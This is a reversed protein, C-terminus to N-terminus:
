PLKSGHTRLPQHSHSNIGRIDPGVSTPLRSLAGVAPAGFAETVLAVTFKRARKLPQDLDGFTWYGSPKCRTEGVFHHDGDKTTAWAAIRLPRKSDGPQFDAWTARGVGLVAGTLHDDPASGIHVGGRRHTFEPLGAGIRPLTGPQHSILELTTRHAPAQFYGDEVVLVAYQVGPRVDTVMWEGNKDLGYHDHKSARRWGHAERGGHVPAFRWVFPMVVLDALRYGAHSTVKGQLTVFGRSPAFHEISSQPFMAPM